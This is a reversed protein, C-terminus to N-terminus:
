TASATITQHRLAAEYCIRYLELENRGLVDGDCSAKRAAIKAESIDSRGAWGDLMFVIGNLIRQQGETTFSYKKIKEALKEPLLLNDEWHRLTLGILTVIRLALAGDDRHEGM